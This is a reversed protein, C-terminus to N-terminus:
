RRDFDDEDDDDDDDDEDDDHDDEDCGLELPRCRYGKRNVCGIM